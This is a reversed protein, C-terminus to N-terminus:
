YPALLSEFLAVKVFPDKAISLLVIDTNTKEGLMRMGLFNGQIHIELM